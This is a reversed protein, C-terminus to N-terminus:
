FFRKRKSNCGSLAPFFVGGGNNIYNTDEADCSQSNRNLYEILRRKYSDAKNDLYNKFHELENTTITQGNADILKFTGKNTIKYQNMIVYDKEIEYVMYPAIYGYLVETIEQKMDYSPTDMKKKLEAIIEDYLAEGIVPLIYLAQVDIISTVILKAETNLQIHGNQKLYTPSIFGINNKM